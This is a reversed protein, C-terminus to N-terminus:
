GVVQLMRGLDFLLYKRHMFQGETKNTMWLLRGLFSHFLTPNALNARTIPNEFHILEHEDLDPGITAM